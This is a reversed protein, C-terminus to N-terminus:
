IIPLWMATQLVVGFLIISKRRGLRSALWASFLQAFSGLLSPFAALWSIQATSAKLFLAYASLYHEGAGAMVSYAVGDRVSHRLSQETRPDKSFRPFNM